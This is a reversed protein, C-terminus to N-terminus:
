LGIARNLMIRHANSLRDGFVVFVGVSKAIFAQFGTWNKSFLFWRVSSQPVQGSLCSESGTAWPQFARLNSDQHFFVLIGFSLRGALCCGSWISDSHVRLWSSSFEKEQFISRSELPKNRSADYNKDNEAITWWIRWLAPLKAANLAFHFQLVVKCNWKATSPQRGEQMTNLKCGDESPLCSNPSVQDRGPRWRM